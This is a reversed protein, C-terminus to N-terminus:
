VVPRSCAAIFGPLCIDPSAVLEENYFLRNPVALINPHSRYNRVLKTLMMPDYHLGGPGPQDSRRYPSRGM